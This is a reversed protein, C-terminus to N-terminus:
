SYAREILSLREPAEIVGLGITEGDFLHAGHAAGAVGRRSGAGDDVCADQDGREDTVGVHRRGLDDTGPVLAAEDQDDGRAQELARQLVVLGRRM